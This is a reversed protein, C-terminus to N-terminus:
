SYAIEKDGGALPLDQREKAVRRLLAQGWGLM